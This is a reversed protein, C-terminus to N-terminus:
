MSSSIKIPIMKLTVDILVEDNKLRLRESNKEEEEVRIISEIGNRYIDRIM